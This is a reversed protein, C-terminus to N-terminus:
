QNEFRQRNRVFNVAVEGTGGNRNKVINAYDIGDHEYLMITGESHADIIRGGFMDDQKPKRKKDGDNGLKVLQSAVLMIVGTKKTFAQLKGCVYKLAEIGSLKLHAPPNLIQLYDIGLAEIGKRKWMAYGWACVADVDMPRDNIHLPMEAVRDVSSEVKGILQEPPAYYNGTDLAFTSVNARDGIIRRLCKESTMELSVLGVQKNEYEAWAALQNLMYVSKGGGPEAAVFYPNGTMYNGLTRSLGTLFCSLGIQKGQAVGKWADISDNLMERNTKEDASVSEIDFMSAQAFKLPESRNKDHAADISAVAATIVRRREWNGLLNWTHHELHSNICAQEMFDYIDGKFGADKLPTFLTTFEIPKDNAFLDFVTLYALANSHLHFSDAKVGAKELVPIVYDPDNIMAGIIAHEDVPDHPMIRADM